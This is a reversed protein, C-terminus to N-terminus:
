RREWPQGLAILAREAEARYPDDPPSLRMYAQWHPIAAQVQGFERALLYHAQWLWVPKEKQTGPTGAQAEAALDVARKLHAAAQPGSGNSSLLKGYRFHWTANDPDRGLAKEWMEMAKSPRGLDAYGVALDAVAEHRSPKLELATELDRIADKVAGQKLRLRGRQWFADALGKDLEIATDHDKQAEANRGVENAVWGHYLQYLGRTPDLAVSRELRNLADIYREQAFLTRGLCYHAEASRPRAKLVKELLQEADALHGAIV